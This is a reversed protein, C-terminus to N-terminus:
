GVELPVNQLAAEAKSQRIGRLKRLLWLVPGGRELIAGILDIVISMRRHRHTSRVELVDHLM